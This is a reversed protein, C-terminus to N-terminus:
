QQVTEKASLLEGKIPLRICHPYHPNFEFDQTYSSKEYPVQRDARM